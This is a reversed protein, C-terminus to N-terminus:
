DNVTYGEIFLCDIIIIIELVLIVPGKYATFSKNM